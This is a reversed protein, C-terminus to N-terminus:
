RHYNRRETEKSHGIVRAQYEIGVIKICPNKKNPIKTVNKGMKGDINSKLIKAEEQDRCKIIIVGGEKTNRM